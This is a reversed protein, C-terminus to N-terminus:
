VQGQFGEREPGTPAPCSRLGAWSGGLPLGPCKLRQGETSFTIVRCGPQLLPGRPDPRPWRPRPLNPLTLASSPWRAGGAPRVGVKTWLSRRPLSAWEGMDSEELSSRPNYDLLSRLGPFGLAHVVLVAGTCLCLFRVLFLPWRPSGPRDGSCGQEAGPRVPGEGLGGKQLFGGEEGARLGELALSGGVTWSLSCGPIPLPGYPQPSGAQREGGERGLAGMRHTSLFTARHAM